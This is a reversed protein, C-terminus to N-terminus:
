RRLWASGCAYAKPSWNFGAWGTGQGGVIRPLSWFKLTQIWLGISSTTLFVQYAASVFLLHFSSAMVIQLKASTGWQRMSLWCTDHASDLKVPSKTPWM